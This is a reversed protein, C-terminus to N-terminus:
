EKPMLLNGNEDWRYGADILTQRAAEGGDQHSGIEPNYWFENVPAMSTKAVDGLGQLAVNIVEQKDTAQTLALRFARDDFPKGKRHNLYVPTFGHSSVAATEINEREKLKQFQSPGLAKVNHVRGKELDGIAASKSGYIKWILKDMAFEWPHTEEYNDHKEYVARNQSEYATLEFPGSGTMDVETKSWERPHSFGEEEVVGEWVHKPLIWTQNLSVSTFSAQPESLNFRVTLDDLVETEDIIGYYSELYPSDWENLYDYTFKVDESTVPEGDHFTMGERLTAEITTDDVVKPMEKAASPKPTGDLSIRVLPDYIPKLGRVSTTGNLNMTNLTNIDRTTGLIFTSTDGVPELQSLSFVNWYPMGGPIANWNEWSRLDAASLKQEHWMFDIPVDEFLMEQCRYAAEQRADRDYTTAVKEAQEDYDPNSYGSSNSGGDDSFDSHWISYLLVTPDLREPRASWWMTLMEYEYSTYKGAAQSFQLPNHEVDLGIEDSWMKTAIEAMSFRQTSYGRSIGDWTIDVREYNDREGSEPQPFKGGGSSGDSGGSGDSDGDGGDSGGGGTCGALGIVGTGAAARLFSRRGNDFSM